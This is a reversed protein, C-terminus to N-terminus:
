SAAFRAPSLTALDLSTTGDLALEALAEGIASAFKFGHGSLGVALLLRPDAPHPGLIFDHDPTMTYICVKAGLYRGALDPLFREVHRRMRDSEEPAIARDITDPDCRSLQVNHFAIKVGLERGQLAPLCYVQVGDDHEWILIPLAPPAFRALPGRPLFWHTLVRTAALPLGATVELKTAWAGAAVIVRRAAFRARATEVVVDGSAQNRVAVVAQDTHLEAGAARAAALHAEICAEPDLVGARDEWVAVTGDPAALQPYRGRLDETSLLEHPLGLARASVLAGAVVSSGERGIMLGGTPELLRRGSERELEEWLSWARQVLPVYIPGEFYAQRIIRSRGHSSGQDHPAPLRDLGLVRAGRRALHYAAASGMGGLGVVIADFSPRM